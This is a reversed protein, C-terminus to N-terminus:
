DGTDAPGRLEFVPTPDSFGKLSREGATDFSFGCDTGLQHVTESVLIRGADAADCVRSALNVTSGFIDDNRQVPEGAAMGIRVRLPPSEGAESRATFGDQIVLSCELAGAVDEFSAM